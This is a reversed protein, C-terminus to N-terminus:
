KKKKKLCFVAYSISVHSSNLRTSKRDLKDLVMGTFFADGHLTLNHFNETGLQKLPFVVFIQDHLIIEVLDIQAPAAVTDLTCRSLIEAFLQLVQGNGFAGAQDANGIVGRQEVGIRDTDKFVF